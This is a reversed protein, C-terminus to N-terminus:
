RPVGPVAYREVDGQFDRANHYGGAIGLALVVSIIVVWAPVAPPKTRTYVLTLLAVWALGFALGALVDSLWHAGLYVRSFGILLVLLVAAFSTVRRLVPPAGWALLVALFGYLVISMSAHGSPFSYEALGDYISVPRPRQIVRKVGAVFVAAGGVAAFLYAAARQQRVLTLTVIGAVAVPIVVKADGLQTIAIMIADLSASRGAQLAGYAATDLRVLPDGATVHELIEFFAWTGFILLGALSAILPAETIYPVLPKPVTRALWTEGDALRRQVLAVARDVPGSALAPLGWSLLWAILVIAALSLSIM